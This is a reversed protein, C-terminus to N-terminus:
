AEGELMRQTVCDALRRRILNLKNYITQPARGLSAALTAIDADDFYVSQVLQRQPEELKQLCEHLSALRTPTTAIDSLRETALTQLLEDSFQMRSRGAVRLFNKAEYFAVTSAWALFDSGVEFTEFRRWMTISARQLVDEADHRRGLLAMLYGLLPRRSVSLLEVFMSHRQDEDKRSKDECSDNDTEDTTM